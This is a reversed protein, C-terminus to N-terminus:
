EDESKIKIGNQKLLEATVGRGKIVRVSFTGDKIEFCSCSPSHSTGIFEDAGLFRAIKLTEEAGKIFAETVDEGNENLVKAKKELVDKGTGGKIEQRPRPTPLGGLQEPCVPILIENDLFKMVKSNKNSEGDWRCKIGLLCASVLKM